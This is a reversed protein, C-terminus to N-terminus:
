DHPREGNSLKSITTKNICLNCSCQSEEKSVVRQSLVIFLRLATAKLPRPTSWRAGRPQNFLKSVIIKCYAESLCLTRAVVIWIGGSGRIWIGGCIWIGATAGSVAATTSAAAAAAATVAFICVDVVCFPCCGTEGMPDQSGKGENHEEGNSCNGYPNYGVSKGYPDM